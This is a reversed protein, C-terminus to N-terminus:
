IPPVSHKQSSGLRAQSLAADYELNIQREASQNFDSTIQSLTQLLERLPSNGPTSNIQNGLDRKIGHLITNCKKGLISGYKKIDTIKESCTKTEKGHNIANITSLACAGAASLLIIPTFPSAIVFAFAAATFGSLAATTAHVAAGNRNSKREDEWSQIAETTEKEIDTKLATLQAVKAGPDTTQQASSIQDAWRIFFDDTTEQQTNEAM